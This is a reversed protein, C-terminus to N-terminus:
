SQTPLHRSPVSFITKKFRNKVFFVFKLIDAFYLLSKSGFVNYNIFDSRRRFSISSFYPLFVSFVFPNSNGSALNDRRSVLLKVMHFGQVRYYLPSFVCLLRLIFYKLSRKSTCFGFFDNISKSRFQEFLILDRDTFVCFPVLDVVRNMFPFSRINAFTESVLKM